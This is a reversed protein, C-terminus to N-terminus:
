CQKECISVEGSFSIYLTKSWDIKMVFRALVTRPLPNVISM